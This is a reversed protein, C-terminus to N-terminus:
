LTRELMVYNQEYTDKLKRLWGKRGVITISICGGGKAWAEVDPLM